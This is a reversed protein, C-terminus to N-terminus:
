SLLIEAAEYGLGFTVLLGDKINGTGVCYNESSILSTLSVRSDWTETKKRSGPFPIERSRLISVLSQRVIPRNHAPSNDGTAGHKGDIAQKTWQPQPGCVLSRLYTSPRFRSNGDLGPFQSERGLFAIERSNVDRTKVAITTWKRYQM